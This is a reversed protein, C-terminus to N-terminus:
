HTTGHELQKICENIIAMLNPMESTPLYVGLESEEGLVAQNSSIKMVEYGNYEIWYTQCCYNHAKFQGITIEKEM